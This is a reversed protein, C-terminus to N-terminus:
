RRKRVMDLGTIKLDTIFTNSPGDSTTLTISLKNETVDPAAPIAEPTEDDSKKSEAESKSSLNDDSGAIDQDGSKHTDALRYDERSVPKDAMLQQHRSTM